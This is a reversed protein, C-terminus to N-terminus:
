DQERCRAVLDAKSQLQMHVITTLVTVFWTWRRWCKSLCEFTTKFDCVEQQINGWLVKLARLHMKKKKEKAASLWIFGSPNEPQEWLMLSNPNLCIYCCNVSQWVECDECPTIKTQVIVVNLSLCTLNIHTNFVSSGSCVTVFTNFTIHKLDM